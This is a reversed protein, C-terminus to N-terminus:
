ASSRPRWRRGRDGAVAALLHSALVTPPTYLGTDSPRRPVHACPEYTPRLSRDDRVDYVDSRHSLRMVRVWSRTTLVPYIIRYQGRRASRYGTLRFRLPKSVRYPDGALPGTSSTSSPSPEQPQPCRSRAAMRCRARDGHPLPELPRVGPRASM